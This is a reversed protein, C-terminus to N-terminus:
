CGIRSATCRRGTIESGAISWGVKGREDFAQKPVPKDFGPTPRDPTEINEFGATALLGAVYSNSNYGPEAAQPSLDYPLNDRYNADLRFLRNVM